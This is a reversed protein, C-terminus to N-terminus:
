GRVSYSRIAFCARREDTAPYAGRKTNVAPENVGPKNVAPSKNVVCRHARGVLTLDRGCQPCPTM